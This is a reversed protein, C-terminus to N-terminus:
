SLRQPNYSSLAGRVWDSGQFEGSLLLNREVGEEDQLFRTSGGAEEQQLENAM